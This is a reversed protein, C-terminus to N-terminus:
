EEWRDQELSYYLSFLKDIEQEQKYKWSKNDEVARYIIIVAMMLGVGLALGLCFIEINGM